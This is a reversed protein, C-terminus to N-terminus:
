APYEISLGGVGCYGSPNKALYQQHYDEAYYFPEEKIIQTTILSFGAATLAQQYRLCSEQAAKEQTQNYFMIMSRYQTGMDNGQQMGQTPNHMQWFYQLLTNYTIITPDFVVRVVEAHGTLGSCLEHYTPNPTFGGAYGVQTSYVGELQWFKREAGWFCGVGFIALALGDPFPEITRNGNVVHFESVRFAEGRGALAQEPKVMEVAKAM